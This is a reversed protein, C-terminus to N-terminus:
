YAVRLPHRITAHMSQLSVVLGFTAVVAVVASAQTPYTGGIQRRLPELRREGVFQVAAAHRNRRPM